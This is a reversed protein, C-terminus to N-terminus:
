HFLAMLVKRAEREKDLSVKLQEQLKIAAIYEKETNNDIVTQEEVVTNELSAVNIVPAPTTTAGRKKMHAPPPSTPKAPSNKDM